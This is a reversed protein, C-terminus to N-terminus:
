PILPPECAGRLMLPPCVLSSVDGPCSLGYLLLWAALQGTISAYASFYLNIQSSWQSMRGALAIMLSFLSATALGGLARGCLRPAAV